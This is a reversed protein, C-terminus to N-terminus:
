ATRNPADGDSAPELTFLEISVDQRPDIGSIVSVTRRGLVEEVAARLKDEMADQIDLRAERLRAHRDLALQNREMATLSDELVVVLMDAGVFQARAKTPGRGFAEKYLRVMANSIQLLPSRSRADAASSPGGDEVATTVDGGNLSIAAAIEHV